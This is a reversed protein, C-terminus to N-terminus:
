PKEKRTVVTKDEDSVRRPKEGYAPYVFRGAKKGPKSVYRSDAPAKKSPPDKVPRGVASPDPVPLQPGGNYTYTGDNAPNPYPGIEETGSDGNPVPIPTGQDIAYPM